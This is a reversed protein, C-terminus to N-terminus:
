KKLSKGIIKASSPVILPRDYVVQNAVATPIWGNPNAQALFTASLDGNDLETLAFYTFVNTGRVTSGASPLAQTPKYWDDEISTTLLYFTKGEQCQHEVYLFDRASVMM